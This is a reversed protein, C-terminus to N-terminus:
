RLKKEYFVFGNSIVGTKKYGMREYAIQAAKNSTRTGLCMRYAGHRKLDCEAFRMLRRAYGKKRYDKHVDMFLLKGEYASRMYYATWAAVQNDERIVKIAMKGFYQSEYQNPSHTDLKYGIDDQDNVTLWYHDANFLDIIQQRDKSSDYEEVGDVICAMQTYMTSYYLAGASLLIGMAVVIRKFFSLRAKKKGMKM